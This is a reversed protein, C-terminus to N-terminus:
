TWLRSKATATSPESIAESNQFIYSVLVAGHSCRAFPPLVSCSGIREESSLLVLDLINGSPFNTAEKVVQTLGVSCFTDYFMLDLPLVYTDLVDYNDWRLSPLNFDGQLLIEKNECFESIFSILAANDDHSNSPPRYVTVVYINLIFLHVAVVNSVPCPIQTFKINSRIYVATGHKRIGGPADSRVVNFGPLSIFSDPTESTLWTETVGMFDVNNACMFIYLENLKNTLNNLNTHCCFFCYSNFVGGHNDGSIRNM